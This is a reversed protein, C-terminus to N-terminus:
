DRLFMYEVTSLLLGPILFLLGPAAVLVGVWWEFGFVDVMAFYTGVTMPLMFGTVMGLAVAGIAWGQGLLDELGTYELYLQAIGIITFLPFFIAM